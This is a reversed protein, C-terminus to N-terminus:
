VRRACSIRGCLESVNRSREIVYLGHHTVSPDHRHGGGFRVAPRAPDTLRRLDQSLAHQRGTHRDSTAVGTIANSIWPKAAPRPSPRHATIGDWERNLTALAKKAPEQLGPAQAQKKRAEDIESIAADLAERAKEMRGAVAEEEGHAPAATDQWAASLEDHAPGMVFCVTDPGTFV